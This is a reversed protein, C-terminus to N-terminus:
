APDPFLDALVVAVGEEDAAPAVRDALAQIDPKANGMVVGCGAWKLMPIDNYSDGFAVCDERAVGLLSAARELAVGKSVGTHMFELYEDETKTIYLSEGFEEACQAWLADTIAPTDILLIKTPAQGDFRTLDHVIHPVSGTRAQYLRSWHTEERIYWEDDLYYNLHYGHAASWHVIRSAAEPPLPRHALMAGGVTRLMAGNYAILPAEPPLGIQRAFEAITHFRRGSALVVHM